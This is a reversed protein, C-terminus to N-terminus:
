KKIEISLERIQKEEVVDPANTMLCSANQVKPFAIVDKINDTKAILMVFRDLGFALGGHPPAGYRFADVFFGFRSSIDDKTMGLLNFMKEQMKFDHIRISGGGLEQGNVVLDYANARVKLPDTDLLPIDEIKASTFPHHVAVYRKEEQDYELLPFDVVWLVDYISQDILNHKNAIMLRLLGLTEKVLKEEAGAIIFVADGKEVNLLKYIEEKEKEDVFKLFSSTESENKNLIWCLGSAGCGKVYTQYEDVEKRTMTDALNKANIGCVLGKEKVANAFVAFTSDKVIPSLDKIKLDFRTDPKDSGYNDMAEKYSMKRINKDLEINLCGKFVSRLIGEAIEMVDEPKEVFSMEMDIQSFEPQRNARLDEDRFCRAIQYYRDFGSIMLLQKYLQPSQPLAYFEGPHVRSPVLYDRAGEPTSKGLFPTEVEIFGNDALYNRVIRTIKDRVLIKEQLYPRRLDLYRYKLRLTELANVDDKIVFPTTEAESLILLEDGLIEIEGTVMQMNVNTGRSIVTGKVCVVYETRLTAAKELAKSNENFSVQVIGTRDRLDVFILKGMNRAKAVFGMAVVEKGVDEKRFEGCMKTRKLGNLFDAM